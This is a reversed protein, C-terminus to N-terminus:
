SGERAARRAAQDYERLRRRCLDLDRQATKEAKKAWWHLVVVADPDARYALRWTLGSEGDPVRLERVRRGVGRLPKSHPPEVPRGRQVLGLLAGMKQRADAGVPPTKPKESSLFVAPKEDRAM